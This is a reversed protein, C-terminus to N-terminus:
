QAAKRHPDIQPDAPNTRGGDEGGALDTPFRSKLVSVPMTFPGFVMAPGGRRWGCRWKKLPGAGLTGTKFPLRNAPCCTAGRAQSQRHPLRFLMLRLTGGLVRQPLTWVSGIPTARWCRFNVVGWGSARIQAGPFLTGWSRWRLPSVPMSRFACRERVRRLGVVVVRVPDRPGM